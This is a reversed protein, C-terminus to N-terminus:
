LYLSVHIYAFIIYTFFVHSFGLLLIPRREFRASNKGRGIASMAKQLSSHKTEKTVYINVVLSLFVELDM